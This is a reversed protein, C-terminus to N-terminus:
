YIVGEIFFDRCELLVRKCYSDDDIMILVKSGNGYRRFDIGYQDCIMSGNDLLLYGDEKSGPREYLVFRSNQSTHFM